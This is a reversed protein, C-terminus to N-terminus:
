NPNVRNERFLLYLKAHLPHRLFLRVGVKKARLQAAIQRLTREDVNTPVGFTLQQRLQEALQVGLRHATQSDMGTPRDVLSLVERLDEDPLRQMGILVRCSGDGQEWRDVYPALGNWGRLNFYGGCFDARSSLTLTDQLASLLSSAPQLNDFIRPM